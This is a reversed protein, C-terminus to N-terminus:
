PDIVTGMFLVTGSIRERIAFLFPRDARFVPYNPGCACVIIVEVSTVAAAETGKEDVDVYTKHKVDSVELLDGMSSSLPTFDGGDFLHHIGLARLADELHYERELTFKPLFLEVPQVVTAAHLANWEQQSLGAVFANIDTGAPPLVVSMAFAGSGYPLEVVRTGNVDAYAISDTKYMMPVTTSGGSGAFPQQETDEADFTTTWDGKFYIANILYMVAVDPIEDLIRDIKGGTAANVWDNIIGVTAPDRFDSATVQADFYDSTTQLFAPEVAFTQEYWISNAIRFDVSPDLARLLEILSRYAANADTLSVAGLGLADRAEALTQGATGNMMMGLAMSVSLPSLFLNSDPEADNIQHLLSFAFANNAGIVSQEGDTLPRPLETIRHRAPGVPDSCAALALVCLPLLARGLLPM